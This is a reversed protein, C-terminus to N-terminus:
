YHLFHHKYDSYLIGEISSFHVIQYEAPSQILEGNTLQINKEPILHLHGKFLVKKYITPNYFSFSSHNSSTLNLLTQSGHRTHFYFDTNSERYVPSEIVETYPFGKADITNVIFTTCNTYLLNVIEKPSLQM